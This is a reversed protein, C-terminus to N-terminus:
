RILTVNGRKRYTSGGICRVTLYFGYVTSPLEEGEYTGDWGEEPNKTFFVEEGWRGYVMLSVEEIVEGRVRFLDNKGDGNPTFANPIFVYPEECVVICDPSAIFETRECGGAELLLDIQLQTGVPVNEITYDGPAVEVLTGANINIQDADTLFAFNYFQRDTSCEPEGLATFAPLPRVSWTVPTRMSMCTRDANSAEAYYTGPEAPTFITSNSLLLNGGQPADYWDVVMGESVTVELGPPVEEGCTTITDAVAAPPLITVGICPCNPPMVTATNSCGTSSDEITITVTEMETINSVTYNGNGNNVVEGASVVVATGNTTFSFGFSQGDESCFPEGNVLEFTPLPILSITVPVRESTCNNTTSRTEAYYTGAAPPTYSNANSLLLNGGQPADYWDVALGSEVSVTLAPLPDGECVELDGGSVPMPISVDECTPCVPAEIAVERECGTNNNKLTIVLNEQTNVGSVTYMNGNAEFTGASIEVQDADTTFSISYTQLDTECVPGSNDPLYSPLANVTLSVPTRTTSPCQSMESIAEAYYTGAGSPTYSNSAQALRNGGQPADYWDVTFGDAVTVMLVPINDGECITFDGGSVPANVMGDPCPCRPATISITRECGTLTNVLEIELNETTSINNVTYSNTNGARVLEGTNVNVEEANTSFRVAYSIRDDACVPGDGDLEYSPLENVVLQVATRTSSTCNSMLDRAEAYYTGAVNPTFSTAGELVPTGGQAEEYWDVTVGDEVTATLAPISEGECITADGGSVPPSVMGDPCSCDPATITEERDCGTSNFTLTIMLDVELGINSVTYIGDTDESLEGANIDISEADTTFQVSYSQMDPACETGDGVIEFAPLSNVSLVVPTRESSTCDTELDRAEAYFVGGGPPNFTTTGVALPTGGEPVDYWDATQGIVVDVELIPLEEGECINKDGGSVPPAVVINECTPCDPAAVTEERECSTSTNILTIVLATGIPINMVTYEMGESTLSGSNINVEEADTTFTVTYTEKDDACVAGDGSLSYSPRENVTLEVPTRSESKCGLAPDRAEAYYVGATPPTFNETGEALLNGDDPADYWDVAFGEQVSASLTPLDEGECIVQDGGSVPPTLGGDPCVPCDPATIIEERECETANDVLNIVLETGNAIGTVTYNMGENTLNGSSVNVVDANTTFSVQYTESDAACVVGDAVLEYTPLENVILRVSTRSESTCDIEPDRAEAYYVGPSAPTFTNTGEALLNGQVPADYWDVLLGGEAMATLAPFLEGTCIIADGGSVPPTLGGEPCVPCDPATIEEIRECGSEDDVLTIQLDTDLGIGAVNYNGNGNDTLNGASINIADADTSFDVSYTPSDEACVGGGSLLDYTPLEDVVLTVSTRVASTCQNIEHRAEAYFTGAGDPVISASNSALLSGGEPADYWDVTIGAPVMVTLAPIPDGECIRQDDGSVPAEVVINECSCEPANVLEERFCGTSSNVMFITVDIGVPIGTITYSGGDNNVLTGASANIMDADTTFTVEYSSLDNACVISSTNNVFSPLPNLTLTVPVRPSSTCSSITDRAVIYFTGPGMPQFVQGSAMLLGGEEADYWDVTQGDPVSATLMPVAQGDCYSKDGGSLPPAINEDECDCGVPITNVELTCGTEPNRARILASRNVAIGSVRYKNAGLPEITGANTTLEGDTTVEVSYTKLNPACEGETVELTLAQECKEINLQFDRRTISLLEKTERDYEEVCVGIVYQGETTPTGSLIGTRPHISLNNFPSGFPNAASFDPSLWKVDEFPPPSDPPIPMPNQANSGGAIPTCLKYVLSDYKHDNIDTASHDFSFEQNICAAIPPWERFVASSNCRDISKKTLLIEYVAGTNGPDEINALEEGRCCRQYAIRYYGEAPDKGLIVQTKYTVHQVCIGEPATFCEDEELMPITDVALANVPLSTILKGAGDYIAIYGPDDFGEEGPECSKYLDLTIEYRGISIFRYGIEGGVIHSASAEGPFFLM